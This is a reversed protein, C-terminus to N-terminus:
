HPRTARLADTLRALAPTAAHIAARDADGLDELASQITGSWLEAIRDQHSWAQETPHLHIVRRDASDQEKRVLGADVLTRVAASVNSQRVCLLEALEGVTAGPNSLLHKLLALETAPLKPIAADEFVRRRVTWALDRITDAPADPSPAPAPSTATM